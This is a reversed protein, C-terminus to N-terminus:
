HITLWSTFAIMPLLPTISAFDPHQLTRSLWYPIEAIASLGCSFFLNKMYLLVWQQSAPGWGYRWVREVAFSLAFVLACVLWVGINWRINWFKRAMPLQEHEKYASSEFIKLGKGSGSGSFINFKVAM